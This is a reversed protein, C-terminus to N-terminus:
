QDVAKNMGQCQDCCEGICPEEKNGFAADPVKRRFGTMHIFEEHFPDDLHAAGKPNSNPHLALLIWVGKIEPNVGVHGFHQVVCSLSLPTGLQVVRTVGSLNHAIGKTEELLLVM